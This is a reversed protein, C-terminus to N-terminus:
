GSSVVALRVAVARMAAAEVFRPLSLIIRPAAVSASTTGVVVGDDTLAESFGDALAWVHVATGADYATTDGAELPLSVVIRDAGAGTVALDSKLLPQGVALTANLTAKSDTPLDTVFAATDGDLWVEHWEADALATGPAAAATALYIRTGSHASQAFAWVACVVLVAALYRRYHAIFSLLNVISRPM